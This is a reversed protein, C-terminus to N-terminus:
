TQRNAMDVSAKASEIANVRSDMYTDVPNEMKQDQSTKETEGSCATFLLLAGILMVWLLMQKM